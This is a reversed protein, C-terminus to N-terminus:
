IDIWRVTKAYKEIFERRPDVKSGMLLTFIEDAEEADELNVQLMTRDKPNMTTEWLQEPNMEGLGKYRQINVKDKGLDALTEELSKDNYVYRKSNGKRVLYLPPQAIYLAGSEIIGRGYRFFFTLLLTRIHAGDVDADTMIVIKHYRLKKLISSINEESGDPLIEEESENSSLGKITEPGIATILARIEENALIKDLRAKEVNLVKGRLPLIAQFARDRGQKASGGASDGEVLFLECNEPNNDSCDALKGPLTTSELSTKRRALEQAKRTAERVRQAILGKNIISKGVKPNTEIYDTLGEDM